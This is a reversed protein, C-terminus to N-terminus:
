SDAVEKATHRVVWGIDYLNLTMSLYWIGISIYVIGMTYECKKPYCYEYKKNITGLNIGRYDAM